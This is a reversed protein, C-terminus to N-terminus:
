TQVCKENKMHRAIRLAHAQEHLRTWGRMLVLWGPPKRKPNAHYGGLNAVLRFMQGLTLENPDCNRLRGTAQAAALDVLVPDTIHKKAPEESINQDRAQDRLQLLSVALISLLAIAPELSQRTTLQLTEIGCGTKQAKHHEENKWRLSYYHVIKLADEARELPLTTLLIWETPTQSRSTKSDDNLERVIVAGISLPNQGHEGRPQRPPVISLTSWSITLRLTRAPQGHMAPRQLTTCLQAPCQRLHHHLRDIVVPDPSESEEHPKHAHQIKRNHTSRVIFAEDRDILAQLYETIDSGRDSVHVPRVSAPLDPLSKLADSWLRSERTSRNKRAARTEDGSVDDRRHLAQHLLGMVQGNAPNVALSHHAYLGRGHGDGIQGLEEIALGSYDLVTTDHAIVLDGVHHELDALVRQRHADLLGQHTVADHNFMRYMGVLDARRPCKQALSGGPRRAWLNFTHNLRRALRLDPWRPLVMLGGAVDTM